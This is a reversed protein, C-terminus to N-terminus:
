ATATTTMFPDVFHVKSLENLNGDFLLIPLLEKGAGGITEKKRSPMSTLRSSQDQSPKCVFSEGPKFGHSTTSLQRRAWPSRTRALGLDNEATMGVVKVRQDSNPQSPLVPLWLGGKLHELAETGVERSSMLKVGAVVINGVKYLTTVHENRSLALMQRKSEEFELDKADKDSFM